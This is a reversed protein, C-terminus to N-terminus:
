RSYFSRVDRGLELIRAPTNLSIGDTIKTARLYHVERNKLSEAIYSRLEDETKGNVLPRENRAQALRHALAGVPMELYVSFGNSLITDMNGNHCPLGGGTSVVVNNVQVLRNLTETELQRFYPEGKEKFLNVISLGTQREIEQDVDVFDLNLEQALRKGITTKGSGMYGILFVRM